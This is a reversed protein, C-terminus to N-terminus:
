QMRNKYKRVNSSRYKELLDLCICFANVEGEYFYYSMEGIEKSHKERSADQKLEYIIQLLYDITLRENSQLIEQLENTEM